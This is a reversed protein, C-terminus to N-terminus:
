RLSRAEREIEVVPEIEPPVTVKDPIPRVKDNLVIMRVINESGGVFAFRCRLM